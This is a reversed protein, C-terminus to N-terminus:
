KRYRVKELIAKWGLSAMWYMHWERPKGKDKFRGHVEFQMNFNDNIHWYKEGETNEMDEENEDETVERTIKFPWNDIIKSM